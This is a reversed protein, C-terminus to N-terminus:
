YRRAGKEIELQARVFTPTAYQRCVKLALSEQVYVCIVQVNVADLGDEM